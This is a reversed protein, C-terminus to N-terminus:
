PYSQAATITEDQWTVNRGRLHHAFFRSVKVAVRPGFGGGHTGADVTILVNKRNAKQLAGHLLESQNFPVVSDATGHVILFPPDDATVYTIPNATKVRNTFKQIPGGVLRSEPSDAADHDIRANPVSTRNM